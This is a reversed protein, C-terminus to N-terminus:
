PYWVLTHYAMFETFKGSIKIFIGFFNTFKEPNESYKVFYESQWPNATDRIQKTVFKNPNARGRIQKAVTKSQWPNTKDRIRKTVSKSRWPNAKDRIQKTVSENQWPNAKDSIKIRVVSKNKTRIQETVSKSQWPNTTARIQKALSVTKSQWPNTKAVSKSLWPNARGRNQKTVSNCIKTFILKKELKSGQPIHLHQLYYFASFHMPLRSFRRRYLRSRGESLNIHIQQTVSESLGFLDTVYCFRALVFLNELM